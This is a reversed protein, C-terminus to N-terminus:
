VVSKRDLVAEWLTLAAVANDEGAGTLHCKERGGGRRGLRGSRRGGGRDQVLQLAAAQAAFCGAIEDRGVISPLIPLACTQVGTVGIDRIGDEAQFFFFFLFPVFIFM